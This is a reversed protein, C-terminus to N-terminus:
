FWQKAMRCYFFSITTTLFASEACSTNALLCLQLSLACLMNRVKFGCMGFMGKHYRQFWGKYYIIAANLFLFVLGLFFQVYAVSMLDPNGILAWILIVFFALAEETVGIMTSYNEFGGVDLLGHIADSIGTIWYDVVLVYTYQKGIRVTEDDFGLWEMAEDIYIVWLIMFPLSSLSHLITAIQVYQGALTYNKAGIAQSCLTAFAEPFGGVFETTIAVLMNVVVFASVERTGILKGVVGVTSIELAGTFFAQTAFPITLKIIRKMEVDWAMIAALEDLLGQVSMCNNRYDEKDDDIDAPTAKTLTATHSGDLESPPPPIEGQMKEELAAASLTRHGEKKYSSESVNDSIEDPKKVFNECVQDIEEKHSTTTSGHTNRRRHRHRRHGGRARTRPPKGTQDLADKIVGSIASYYTARSSLSANEDDDVFNDRNEAEQQERLKQKQRQERKDGLIVAVPLTALFLFSIAITIVLLAPGPNVTSEVYGYFASDDDEM